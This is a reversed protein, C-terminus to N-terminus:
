GAYGSVKDTDRLIAEETFLKVLKDEEGEPLRVQNLDNVANGTTKMKAPDKPKRKEEENKRYRAAESRAKLMSEIVGVKTNDYVSMEQYRFGNEEDADATQDFYPHQEYIYKKDRVPRMNQTFVICEDSPLRGLEEATMVERATAQYNQNAGSRQGTTIGESRARITTKGLMESFYKLVEPEQSGLFVISACNGVLTKWDDEYMAEIQSINQLTITASINYKRM